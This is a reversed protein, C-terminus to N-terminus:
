RRRPNRRRLVLGGALLSLTGLMAAPEPVAAVEAGEIVFERFGTGGNEVGTFNFRVAAVNEALFGADSYLQVLTSAKSDDEVMGPVMDELQSDWVYGEVIPFDTNDFRSVSALALFVLPDAATSYEVTYQQGDRGADWGAFTKISSLHYGAPSALLDLNFTLSVQNPLVSASSVGGAEGFQGDYLRALDVNYGAGDNERYFYQNGPNAVGEGTRTASALRTALLNDAAVIPSSGPLSGDGTGYNTQVVAGSALATLSVLTTLCLSPLSTVTKM